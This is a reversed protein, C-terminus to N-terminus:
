FSDRSKQYARRAIMAGGCRSDLRLNYRGTRGPGKPVENKAHQGRDAALSRGVSVEKKFQGRLIGASMGNQGKPHSSNANVQKRDQEPQWLGQTREKLSIASDAPLPKASILRLIFIPSVHTEGRM